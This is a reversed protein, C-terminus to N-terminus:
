QPDLGQLIRQAEAASLNYRYYRRYFDQTKATMDVDTFRQPHLLKAAWLVQLAAETSYRDWGFTGIPNAHLRNNQVAKISQWAPDQKIRAIAQAANRGGVIIVDPNAQVIAEMSVESLNAQEPLAPRSGAIRIWEGIISRGGDIRRLNAGGTLHLVTPKQADSLNALRSHVFRLNGDLEANYQRAIQPANGGIVDATIRVTQKLGNFDQFRVLVPKMGARQVQQQMAPQSLLVVDPRVGLLAESQVTQGNSLAPVNKIRPYVKAFWPLNRVAETTAVLKDAGSLMLVVQNNAPWLDAIRNVQQPLEVSQNNIDRVARAHVPQFALLYAPLCPPESNAQHQFCPKEKKSSLKPHFQLSGSLM